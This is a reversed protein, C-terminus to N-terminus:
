AHSKKEIRFAFASHEFFAVAFYRPLSYQRVFPFLNLSV